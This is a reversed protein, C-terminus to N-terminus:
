SVRILGGDAIKVRVAEIERDEWREESDSLCTTIVTLIQQKGL